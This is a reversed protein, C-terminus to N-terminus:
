KYLSRNLSLLSSFHVAKLLIAQDRITSLISKRGTEREKYLKNGKENLCPYM